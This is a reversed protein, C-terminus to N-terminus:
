PSSAEVGVRIEWVSKRRRKGHQDRGADIGMGHVRWSDIGYRRAAASRHAAMVTHGGQLGKKVGSCWESYVRSSIAMDM